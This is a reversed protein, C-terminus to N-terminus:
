NPLTLPAREPTVREKDRPADRYREIYRYESSEKDLSNLILVLGCIFVFGVVLVTIFTDNKM